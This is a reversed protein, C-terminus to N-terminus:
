FNEELSKGDLTGPELIFESCFYLPQTTMDVASTTKEADNV